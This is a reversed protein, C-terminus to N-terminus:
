VCLIINCFIDIYVNECFGINYLLYVLIHFKCLIILFYVSIKSLSKIYKYANNIDM